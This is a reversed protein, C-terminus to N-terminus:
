DGSGPAPERIRGFPSLNRTPTWQDGRFKMQDSLDGEATKKQLDGVMEILAAVDNSIRRLILGNPEKDTM